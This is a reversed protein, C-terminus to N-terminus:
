PQPQVQPNPTTVAAPPQAQVTSEVGGVAPRDPARLDIYTADGLQPDGLVSAAAIWKARLRESGGFRLTVGSRLQFTIGTDRAVGGFRIERRLDDPALQLATLVSVTQEAVSTGAGLTGRVPVVPLNGAPVGPLPRGDASVAMRSAGSALAAVPRDEEVTIVLGHPLSADASVSRVTPYRDIASRLAEIDVDLTSMGEAARELRRAIEEAKYGSVGEVTTDRVEVLSSDRLWPYGAVALAGAVLVAVFVLLVRRSPISPARVGLPAKLALRSM